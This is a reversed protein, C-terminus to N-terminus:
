LWSGSISIVVYDRDYFQERWRYRGHSYTTAMSIRALSAAHIQCVSIYGPVLGSWDFIM